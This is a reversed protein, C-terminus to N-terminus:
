TFCSEQSHFNGEVYVLIAKSLLRSGIECEMENEGGVGMFVCKCFRLMSVAQFIDKRQVAPLVSIAERQPGGNTSNRVNRMDLFSLLAPM